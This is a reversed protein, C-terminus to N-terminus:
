KWDLEDLNMRGTELLRMQSLTATAVMWGDSTDHIIFNNKDLRKVTRTILKFKWEIQENVPIHSPRM